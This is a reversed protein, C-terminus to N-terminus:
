IPLGEALMKDRLEAAQAPDLMNIFLAKIESPRADFQEVLDKIHYGRRTLTPELDDLQRSLVSEVLEASIPKEGTLYGAELFLSLHLQIQLPTRLKTALLDIAEGTLITQIDVKGATCTELLWHIYERQSGTIGDLSFIDTRYGIEEM